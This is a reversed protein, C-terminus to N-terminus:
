AALKVQVPAREFDAALLLMRPKLYALWAALRDPFIELRTNYYTTVQNYYDRALAIRQETEMLSNQLNLFLGDSKLETYQEVTARLLPLLGKYDPGSIGPATAALQSRLETVLTQTGKEHTSYGEVAKALNPILDHRRKLQVEVQSWGHKVQQGLGILSNYVTWLWALGAAFAYILISIIVTQGFGSSNNNLFSRTTIGGGTILLGLVLWLWFFIGFRTSIQKETRTSIIFLPSQKDRAIEAAVVDERERSQGMVYLQVHLPLAWEQFRRRHDSNRVEELPGKAFYLPNNTFCTESLVENGTISAGEPNIQIVGTDDKLYFSIHEDGKAVTSWGSEQHARGKADTVMRSWHEQIQWRYYVCKVGALYSTIPSDSEATGKLETLGLFAGQTKSTPTDDILRRRQYSRFALILLGLAILATILLIFTM